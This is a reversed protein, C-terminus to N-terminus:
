LGYFCFRIFGAITLSANYLAHLGIVYWTSGTVARQWSLFAGVVFILWLHGYVGNMQPAHAATFLVATLFVAATRGFYPCLAPYLFGRFIIEETVPAIVVLSFVALINGLMASEQFFLPTPLDPTLPNLGEWWAVVICFAFFCLLFFASHNQTKSDLALSRLVPERRASLYFILLLVMGLKLVFTEVFIYVYVQLLPERTFFFFNQRLWEVLSFSLDQSRIWWAGSFFILFLVVVDVWSRSPFLEDAIRLQLAARFTFRPFIRLRRPKIANPM